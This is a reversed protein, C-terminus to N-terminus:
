EWVAEDGDDDGDDDVWVEEGDEEETVEEEAREGDRVFGVVIGTARSIEVLCGVFNEKEFLADARHFLSQLIEQATAKDSTTTTPAIPTATTTHSRPSLQPPVVERSTSMRHGRATGGGASVIQHHLVPIAESQAHKEAIDLLVYAEAITGRNATDTDNHHHSKTLVDLNIEEGAVREHFSGTEARKEKEETEKGKEVRSKKGMKRAPLEKKNKEKKKEEKKKFSVEVTSSKKGAAHEEKELKALALLMEKNEKDVASHDREGGRRLLLGSIAQMEDARGEGRGEGDEEEEREQKILVGCESEEQELGLKAVGRSEGEVPETSVADEMLVDLGADGYGDRERPEVKLVCDTISDEAVVAVERRKEELGDRGVVGERVADGGTEEVEDVVRLAMSGDILVKAAFREGRGVDREGLNRRIWKLLNAKSRMEEEKSETTQSAISTWGVYALFDYLENFLAPTLDAITPLANDLYDWM